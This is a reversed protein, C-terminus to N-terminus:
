EDRRRRLIVVGGGGGGTIPTMSVCLGCFATTAGYTGGVAKSTAAGPERWVVMDAAPPDTTLYDLEVGTGDNLTLAPTNNYNASAGIILDNVTSTVNASMDLDVGAASGATKATDSASVTDDMNICYIHWDAVAGATFGLSVTAPLSSPWEPDDETLLYAGNWQVANGTTDLVAFADLDTDIDITISPVGNGRDYGGAMVLLATAGTPITHSIDAPTTTNDGVGSSSTGVVATM